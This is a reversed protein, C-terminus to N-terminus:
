ERLREAYRNIFEEGIALSALRGHGLQQFPFLGALREDAGRLLKDIFKSISGVFMVALRRRGHGAPLGDESGLSREHFGAILSFQLDIGLGMRTVGVAYSCSPM